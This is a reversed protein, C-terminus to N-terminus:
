FMVAIVQNGIADIDYRRLHGAEDVLLTSLRVRPARGHRLLRRLDWLGLGLERLDAVEAIHATQRGHVPTAYPLAPQEATAVEGMRGIGVGSKQGPEPQM